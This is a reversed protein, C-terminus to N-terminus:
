PAHLFFNSTQFPQNMFFTSHIKRLMELKPLPTFELPRNLLFVNREKQTKKRRGEGMFSDVIM